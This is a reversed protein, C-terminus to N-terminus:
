RGEVSLLLKKKDLGGTYGGLTNNSAIVRHCPIIISIPNKGNANAVARSYNRGSIREALMKYSITEGYPIQRLEQWVSQQFPTGHVGPNIKVDFLKREGKFYEGLERVCQEIVKDPEAPEGPEDTYDIRVISDDLSEIRLWGIDYKKFYVTGTM